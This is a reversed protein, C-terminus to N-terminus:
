ETRSRFFLHPQDPDDIQLILERVTQSSKNTLVPFWGAFDASAEIILGLDASDALRLVLGDRSSTLSPPLWRPIPNEGVELFLRDSGIRPHLYLSPTLSVGPYAVFDGQVSAFRLVDFRDGMQPVYGDPLRVELTGDLVARGTTTLQHHDTGPNLGALEVVITGQPANTWGNAGVIEIIGTSGGPVITAANRVAGNLTGNGTLVGGQLDVFSTTTLIGGALQLTGATQVCSFTFRLTGSRVELLGSQTVPASLNFTGASVSRILTGRNVLASAPSGSSTLTGNGQLEFVAGPEIQLRAQNNMTINGTSVWTGQGAILLTRANLTRTQGTATGSVNLTSGPAMLTTGTGSLAGQTWDLRDNITMLGTGSLSGNSLTVNELAISADALDCVSNAGSVTLSEGLVPDPGSFSVTTGTGTVVTAGSVEYRGPVIITGGGFNVTGAGLIESAPTLNYNAAFQLTAGADALFQGTTTGGGGLRLTGGTVRVVGQNNLDCNIAFNGTTTSRLLTGEINLESRPSGSTALTGPARLDLTGGPRVNWRAGTMTLARTTTWIAAGELNLTRGAMALNV